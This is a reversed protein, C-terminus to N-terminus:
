NDGGMVPSGFPPKYAGLSDRNQREAIRVPLVDAWEGNATLERHRALWYERHRAVQADLEKATITPQGKDFTTPLANWNAFSQSDATWSPAVVASAKAPAHYPAQSEIGQHPYRPWATPSEANAAGAFLVPILLIATKAIKM